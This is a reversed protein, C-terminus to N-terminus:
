KGKYQRHMEPQTGRIATRYMLRRNGDYDNVAYHLTSRNDWVAITGPTWRFRCNFEPRICHSYLRSLTAESEQESLDEFRSTYTPNIFLIAEGTEPHRCVAPHVTERDAEVNGRDMKISGKFQTEEPPAHAVGYPKGTHIVNRGYLWDRMEEPLAAYARAMDTWVTDGGVPPVELSYLISAMPPTELFSFDSHWDGGFVGMNIEDAEKLVAIVEPHGSLPEIYPLRLLEGFRSSFACLGEIDLDQDRLFIVRYHNLAQRLERVTEDVIDAAVLGQIEAGINPTVPVVSFSTFQSTPIM